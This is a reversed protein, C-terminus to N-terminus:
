CKTDISLINSDFISLLFRSSGSVTSFTMKQESQSSHFFSNCASYSEKISYLVEFIRRWVSFRCTIVPWYHEFNFFSQSAWTKFYLALHTAWPNFYSFFILKVSIEGFFYFMQEIFAKKSNTNLAFISDTPYLHYYLEQISEEVFNYVYFLRLKNSNLGWSTQQIYLTKYQKFFADRIQYRLITLKGIM